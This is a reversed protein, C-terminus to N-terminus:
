EIYYFDDNLPKDLVLSSTSIPRNIPFFKPSCLPSEMIKKKPALPLALFKDHSDFFFIVHVVEMNYVNYLLRFYYELYLKTYIDTLFCSHFAYVFIILYSTIYTTFTFSLLFFYYSIYTKVKSIYSKKIM